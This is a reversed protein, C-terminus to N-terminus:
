QFNMFTAFEVRQCSLDVISFFELRFKFAHPGRDLNHENWHDNAFRLGRPMLM